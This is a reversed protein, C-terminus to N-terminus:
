LDTSASKATELLNKRLGDSRAGARSAEARQALGRHVARLFERQANCQPTTTNDVDSDTERTVLIKREPIQMSTSVYM